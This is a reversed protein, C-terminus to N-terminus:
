NGGLRPTADVAQIIDATMLSGMQQAHQAMGVAVLKIFDRATEHDVNIKVSGTEGEFEVEGTYQGKSPGWEALRLILSKLQM